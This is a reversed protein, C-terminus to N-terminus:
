LLGNGIDSGVAGPLRRTSEGVDNGRGCRRHSCSGVDGFGGRAVASATVLFARVAGM